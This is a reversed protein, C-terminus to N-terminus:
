SHSKIAFLHPRCPVPTNFILRQGLQPVAVRLLGDMTRLLHVWVRYVPAM